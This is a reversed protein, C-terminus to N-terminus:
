ETRQRWRGGVFGPGFVGVPLLLLLLMSVPM